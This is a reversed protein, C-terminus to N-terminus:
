KIVLSLSSTLLPSNGNHAVLIAVPSPLPSFFPPFRMAFEQPAIERRALNKGTFTM